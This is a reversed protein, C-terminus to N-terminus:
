EEKVVLIKVKGWVKVSKKNGVTIYGWGLKEDLPIEFYMVGERKCLEAVLESTDYGHISKGM